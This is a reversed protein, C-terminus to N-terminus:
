GELSPYGDWVWIKLQKAKVGMAKHQQRTPNGENIGLTIRWSLGPMFPWKFLICVLSGNEIAINGMSWWPEGYGQGGKVM